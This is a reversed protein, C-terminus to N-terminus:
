HLLGGVFTNKFTKGKLNNEMTPLDPSLRMVINNLLSKM